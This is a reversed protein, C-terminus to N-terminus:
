GQWWTVHMYVCMRGWHGGGRQAHERFAHCFPACLKWGGTGSEGKTAWPSSHQSHFRETELIRETFRKVLLLLPAAPLPPLGDRNKLGTLSSHLRKQSSSPLMSLPCPTYPVRWCIKVLGLGSGSACPEFPRMAPGALSARILTVFALWIDWVGFLEIFECTLEHM